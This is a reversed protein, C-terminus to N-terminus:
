GLQQGFLQEDPTEKPKEKDEPVVLKGRSSISLGLDNGSQRANTFAKNQITTLKGYAELDNVPDLKMLKKSVIEYQEQSVLYRGLADADVNGIIKLRELEKVYWKFQTKLRAPLFEPPEVNDSITEPETQKRQEMEEKTRHSKGEAEIVRWSKKPRAM